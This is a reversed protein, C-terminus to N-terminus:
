GRATRSSGDEPDTHGFDLGTVIPMDPRGFEEAVIRQITRPLEEHEEETYADPRGVIMGAIRDFVSLMGYNRLWYSVQQPSIATRQLRGTFSQGKGSKPDLGGSRAKSFSWCMSAAAWSIAKSASKAKFGPGAPTQNCRRATSPASKTKGACVSTPGSM